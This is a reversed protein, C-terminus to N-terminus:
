EKGKADLAQRAHNAIQEIMRHTDPDLNRGAIAWVKIDHLVGRLREIEATQDTIVKEMRVWGVTDKSPPRQAACKSNCNICLIYGWKGELLGQTAVQKLELEEIRKRDATITALFSCADCYPDNCLRHLFFAREIKDKSLPKVDAM